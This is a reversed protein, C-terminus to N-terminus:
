ATITRKASSEIIKLKEVAKELKAGGTKKFLTIAAELRSRAMDAQGLEIAVQGAEYLIEAEHQLLNNERALTLSKSLIDDARALDGSLRYAEAEIVALDAALNPSKLVELLERATNILSRAAIIDSTKLLLKSKNLYCLMVLNTDHNELALKLSEDLAKRSEEYQDLELHALGINHLIYAQRISNGARRFDSLCLKFIKISEKQDGEISRIAGQTNLITARLQFDGAKTAWDIAKECLAYSEEFQGLQFRINALNRVSEAAGRYNESELFLSSAQECSQIARDWQGTQMYVRGLEKTIEGRLAKDTDSSSLKLAEDLLRFVVTTNGQKIWDKALSLLQRPDQTM